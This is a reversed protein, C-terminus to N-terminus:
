DYYTTIRVNEYAVLKDEYTLRGEALLKDVEDSHMGILSTEVGDIYTVTVLKEQLDIQRDWKVQGNMGGEALTVKSGDSDVVIAVHSNEISGNDFYILDGPKAGDLNKHAAVAYVDDGFVEKRVAEAFQSCSMLTGNPYVSRLANIAAKVMDSTINTNQKPPAQQEPQSQVPPQEAQQNDQKPQKQEQEQQTNTEQKNNNKATATNSNNNNNSITATNEAAKTNKITETSDTGFIAETITETLAYDEPLAIIGDPVETGYESVTVTLPEAQTSMIKAGVLAENEDFYVRVTNSDTEWDEYACLVGNFRENGSYVYKASADPIFDPSISDPTNEDIYYSQTSDTINYIVGDLVLVSMQMIPMDIATLMNGDKVYTTVNVAAEGDEVGTEEASFGFAEMCTEMAIYYEGTEFLALIQDYKTVVPVPTPTATIEATNSVPATEVASVAVPAPEEQMEITEVSCGALMLTIALTIALSMIILTKKTNKM